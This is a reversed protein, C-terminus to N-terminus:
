RSQHPARLQSRNRSSRKGAAARGERCSRCYEELEVVQLSRRRPIERVKQQSARANQMTSVSTCTPSWVKVQM